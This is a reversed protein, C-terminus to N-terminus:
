YYYLYSPICMLFFKNFALNWSRMSLMTLFPKMVLGQIYLFNLLIYFLITDRGTQM